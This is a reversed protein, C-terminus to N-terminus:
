VSTPHELVDAVFTTKNNWAEIQDPRAFVRLYDAVFDKAREAVTVPEYHPAEGPALLEPIPAIVTQSGPGYFVATSHRQLEGGSIVRHRGPVWRDNTWVSLLGGFFVQLAGPVVPVPEWSGDPRQVQLGAYDGEQYLITIANGDAHELLLLKDEDTADDPWVWTPYKNFTVSTTDPGVSGFREAPVDLADAFLGLLREALAIIEARFTLVLDKYGPDDSPWINDHDYHHRAFEPEVGAEIAEDVNDFRATFYRELELRGFDDPWQRWGRYPHGTPSALAEKDVRPRKLLADTRRDHETILALPIGHNVVQIVGIQEGARRIADLVDPPASGPNADRIDIVPIL